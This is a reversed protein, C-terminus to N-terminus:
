QGQNRLNIFENLGVAGTIGPKAAYPPVSQGVTKPLELFQRLPKNQIGRELYNAIAPNKLALQALKPAAFGLTAGEAASKLDGQSLGYVAGGVLAPAAQAAMRAMTGSNPTKSQLIDKGARALNALDRDEAYLANRKSKTALSNSLLSPSINGQENKLVVDEIKKMNGYQTNTKKLLAIDDPNKISNKLGSLLTDKIDSAYHSVNSNQAILRDLIRKQAQFQDGTLISRNASAKNIIDEYIRQVIVKEQDPLTVMADDLIGRLDKYVQGSIKAGYKGYLEDYVNGLRNKANQIVDPTIAEAEEGMTKAIAKNYATQQQAAFEAEKGVTFPNDNLAAKLRTLFQSGTAQAVDIPVGADRLIKVNEQSSKSLQNEFPQALSTAGKAVGGVVGGVAGGVLAQKLKETIYSKNEDTVPTTLLNFTAGQLAGKGVGGLVTKAQGGGPVLKNLPSAIMGAVEGVTGTIPNEQMYPQTIAETKKINELANQEIAKGTEPAVLSVGKGVLQQVAGAGKSIAGGFGAVFANLKNTDTPKTAELTTKTEQAPTGTLSGKQLASLFGEDENPEKQLSVNQLDTPKKTPMLVTHVPDKKGLPRYLGFQNLFDEPVNASIDVANTHYMEKKDLDPNTPMYIGSEDKKAREFLEKQKAYSRAGSTIPLEKGYKEKYAQQAQIIRESLSPEIGELINKSKLNLPEITVTPKEGLGSAFSDFAGM